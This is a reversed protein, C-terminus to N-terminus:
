GYKIRRRIIPNKDAIKKLVEEFVEDPNLVYNLYVGTRGKEDRKSLVRVREEVVDLSVGIKKAAWSECGFIPTEYHGDPVPEILILRKDVGPVRIGARLEDLNIAGGFKYFEYERRSLKVLPITVSTKEDVYIHAKIVHNPTAQVIKRLFINFGLDELILEIKFSPVLIPVVIDVDSHSDVDGRAVSGHIIALINERKLGDMIVEAKKRFRELCKWQAPSYTVKVKDGRFIPKERM